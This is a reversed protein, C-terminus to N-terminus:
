GHKSFSPDSINNLKNPVIECFKYHKCYKAAGTRKGISVAGMCTNRFHWKAFALVAVLRLVTVGLFHTKLSLRIILFYGQLQFLFSTRVFYRNNCNLKFAFGRKNVPAHLRVWHTMVISFSRNADNM